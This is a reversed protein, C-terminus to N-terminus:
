EQQEIRKVIPHVLRKWLQDFPTPLVTAHEIADDISVVWGLGGLVLTTLTAAAGVTPYYPWISAFAFLAGVAAVLQMILGLYMHHPALADGDPESEPDFLDSM